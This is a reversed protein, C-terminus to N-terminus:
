SKKDNEKLEKKFRLHAIVSIVLIAAIFAIGLPNIEELHVIGLHYVGPGASPNGQLLLSIAIITFIIAVLKM